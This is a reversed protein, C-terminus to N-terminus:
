RSQEKVLTSDHGRRRKYTKIKFFFFMKPDIREYCRLVNFSLNSGGGEGLRRSELTRRSSNKGSKRGRIEIAHILYVSQYGSPQILQWGRLTGTYLLENVIKSRIAFM